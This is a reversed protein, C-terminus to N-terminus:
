CEDLVKRVSKLLDDISIPKLMVEKIGKPGIDKDSLKQNGGTCLIVPIDPRIEILAAALKEGTIKPMTMDTIVLDFNDPHSRFLELAEVSSSSAAVTYGFRKLIQSEIKLISAEDDLVLIRETGSPLKGAEYPQYAEPKQTIPFYLTFITGKGLTSEVMIKGSYNEIIGHIMSLGMGTGDEVTKTTFYPEFIRGIIAPPIGTGTDSVKIKIYNGEELGIDKVEPNKDIEVDNISVRLIGGNEKMAHASNTCLNMFIQHIQTPNGMVFSDSEIDSDIEITSPISARIFRLVEKAIVDIRLPNILEDSQRAFSLIQKVLDKARIGGVLIEKLDDELTTEKEVEDLALETFGIIASLINNFDHAIGSALIGISEMKQVQAIKKELAAKKTIDKAIWIFNLLNSQPDKVPSISCKSVYFTGDKRKNTLRGSWHNGSLITDWLNKYFSKDQLGSKLFRPNRGVSEQKSYGTMREFAPNIYKISGDLTTIVISEGAQEIASLLQNRDAEMQKRETIDRINCQILSTKDVLYIDTDITQGDKTKIQIDNFHIVGDIELRQLLEQPTGEEFTFGIDKMEKGICDENSYGFISTIAPNAHRIKFEKKELLLIGDNATEFLRRYRKESDILLTELDKRETIDTAIGEFFGDQLSLSGSFQICVISGDDKRILAEFNDIKGIKQLIATLEDGMAPYVYHEIAVYNNVCDDVSQYGLIEAMRKNAMMIKGNSLRSRFLGARANNFINKYLRESKQLADEALKRETIDRDVGRFGLMEGKASIIPVGNTLLCVQRGDKHVNWNELDKISEKKIIIKTFTEKVRKAEDSPMFDFPTKGILEHPFYGLIKEVSKSCDTYRGNSDVEWIWHEMKELIGRFRKGKGGLAETQKGSYYSRKSERPFRGKTRKNTPTEVM